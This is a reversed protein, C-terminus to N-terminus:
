RREGQNQPQSGGPRLAGSVVIRFHQIGIQKAADVLAKGQVEERPGVDPQYYDSVGFIGHAGTMAQVLSASDNLNAKVIEAGLEALTKAVNSEPYRTVARVRFTGDELLYRVAGGGQRGTTGFVTIIKKMSM